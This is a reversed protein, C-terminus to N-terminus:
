LLQYAIKFAIYFTPTAYENSLHNSKTKDCILGRLNNLALGVKYMYIMYIHNPKIQNKYCILWRLNNLALDEKYM